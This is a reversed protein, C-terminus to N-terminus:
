LSCSLCFLSDCVGALAFRIVIGSNGVIELQVMCFPFRRRAKLLSAALSCCQYVVPRGALAAAPKCHVAAPECQM